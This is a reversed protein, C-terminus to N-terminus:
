KISMQKNNNTKAAPQEQIVTHEQKIQDKVGCQRDDSIDSLQSSSDAEVVKGDQNDEEEEFIDYMEESSSDDSSEEFSSNLVKVM